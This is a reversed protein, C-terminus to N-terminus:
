LHPRVPCPQVQVRVAAFTPGRMSLDVIARTTPAETRRGQATITSARTTVRAAPAYAAVCQVTFVSVMRIM